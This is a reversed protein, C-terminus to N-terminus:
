GRRKGKMKKKRIKVPPVKAVKERLQEVTALKAPARAAGAGKENYRKMRLAYISDVVGRDGPKKDKDAM